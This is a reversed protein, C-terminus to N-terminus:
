LGTACVWLEGDGLVAPPEGRGLLVACWLIWDCSKQHTALSTFNSEAQLLLCRVGNLSGHRSSGRERVMWVPFSVVQRDAADAKWGQGKERTLLDPLFFPLVSIYKKAQPLLM